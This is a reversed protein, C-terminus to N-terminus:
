NEGCAHAPLACYGSCVPLAPDCPPGPLPTCDCGPEAAHDDCPLFCVLTENGAVAGCRAGPQCDLATMCPDGPCPPPPDDSTSDTAVAIPDEGCASISLLLALVAVNRHPGYHHRPSM